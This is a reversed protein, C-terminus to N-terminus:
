QPGDGIQDGMAAIGAQILRCGIFNFKYVLPNAADLNELIVALGSAPVHLVEWITGETAPVEKVFDSKQIM